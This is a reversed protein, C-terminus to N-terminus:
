KSAAVLPLLVPPAIGVVTGCNGCAWNGSSGHHM